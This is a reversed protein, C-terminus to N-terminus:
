VKLNLYTLYNIVKDWSTVATLDVNPEEEQQYPTSMLFRVCDRNFMNLNSVRDDIVVDASGNMCGKSKTAVFHLNDGLFSFHTKVYDYKSFIHEFTTHSLFYIEWFGSDYLEKIVGYAGEILPIDKYLDPQKWFEMCDYGDPLNFYNSINYNVNEQQFDRELQKHNNTTIDFGKENLLFDYWLKGMDPTLVLDIDIAIVKKNM